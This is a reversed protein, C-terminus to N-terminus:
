ASQLGEDVLRLRCKRWIDHMQRADNQSLARVWFSVRDHGSRVAIEVDEGLREVQTPTLVGSPARLEVRLGRGMNTVIKGVLRKGNSLFFRVATKSEWSVELQPDMAKFRGVMALLLDQKWRIVHRGHISKQSLHWQRGDSKWPQARDPQAETRELEGFYGGVATKLFARFRGKAVDKFDRLYLRVEEWGASCSRLRVRSWQGYIPLDSREDLTKVGLRNVLGAQRFTGRSMRLAVELLDKGGTLIHCFWPHQGPAKIEIRTRHNWDTRAFEGLSQITEEIWMLVAANWEIHAGKRDVHNLTHWTRGDREWPLGIAEDHNTSGARAARM